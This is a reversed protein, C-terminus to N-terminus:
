KLEFDMVKQHITIKETIYGLRSYILALNNLNGIIEVTDQIKSFADIAENQMSIAERYRGLERYAIATINLIKGLHYDGGCERAMEVGVLGTKLAANFDAKLIFLATKNRYFLMRQFKNNTTKLLSDAENVFKNALKVNSYKLEWALQNVLELRKLGKTKPLERQLSDTNIAYLPLLGFFTFFFLLIYNRM